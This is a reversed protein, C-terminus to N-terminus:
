NTHKGTYLQVYDDHTDPIATERLGQLIKVALSIDYPKGGVFPPRGSSIEWLLVGISYVDSRGNLSYIHKSNNVERQESFRKPDVYPIIGTSKENIRKSLGFVALKISNQHVLLSGNHKNNNFM